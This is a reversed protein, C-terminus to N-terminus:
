DVILPGRKSVWTPLPVVDVREEDLHALVRYESCVVASRVLAGVEVRRLWIATKVLRVFGPVRRGVAIAWQLDAKM